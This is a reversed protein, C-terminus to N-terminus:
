SCFFVAAERNGAKSGREDDGAHGLPKFLDLSRNSSLRERGVGTGVDEVCMRLEEGGARGTERNVDLVDSRTGRPATGESCTFFSPVVM